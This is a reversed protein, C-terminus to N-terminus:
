QGVELTIIDADDIQGALRLAEAELALFQQASPYDMFTFLAAADPYRAASARLSQAIIARQRATLTIIM